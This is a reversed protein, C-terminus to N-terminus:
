ILQRNCQSIISVRREPDSKLENLHNTINLTVKEGNLTHQRSFLLSYM